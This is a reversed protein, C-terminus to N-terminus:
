TALIVVTDEHPDAQFSADMTPESIAVVGSLSAALQPSISDIYQDAQSTNPKLDSPLPTPIPIQGDPRGTRADYLSLWFRLAHPGTSSTIVYVRKGDTVAHAGVALSQGPPTARSWLLAGTHADWCGFRRLPPYLSVGAVLHDAAGTHELGAPQLTGIQRGNRADIITNGDLEVITDAGAAIPQEGFQSPRRWAAQGTSLEYGEVPEQACRPETGLAIVRATEAPWGQDFQCGAPPHASWRIAGNSTDLAMMERGGIVLVVGPDITSAWLTDGLDGLAATSLKAHWTVRATRAAIRALVGDDWLVYVAGSFAIMDLVSHGHRQYIWYPRGTALNVAAVGDAITMRGTGAAARVQTGPGVIALGGITGFASFEGVFQGRPRKIDLAAPYRGFPGQIREGYGSGITLVVVLAAAALLLGVVAILTLRAGSARARLSQKTKGQLLASDIRTNIAAWCAIKPLRRRV